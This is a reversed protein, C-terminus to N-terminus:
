PYINKRRRICASFSSIFTIFLILNIAWLIWILNGFQAILGLQSYNQRFQHRLIAAMATWIITGISNSLFAILSFFIINIPHFNLTSLLLCCAVLCISIFIFYFAAHSSAKFYTDKNLDLNSNNFLNSAKDNLSQPIDDLLTKFPEFKFSWISNTCYQPNSPALYGACHNWLGWTYFLRLGDHDFKQNLPQNLNGLALNRTALISALNQTYITLLRLHRPILQNLTFNGIGVFIFLIGAALTLIKFLNLNNYYFNKNNFNSQFM